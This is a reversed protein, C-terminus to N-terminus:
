LFLPQGIEAHASAHAHTANADAAQDIWDVCSGAGGRMTVRRIM